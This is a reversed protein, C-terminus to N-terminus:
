YDYSDQMQWQIADKGEFNKFPVASFSYSSHSFGRDDEFDMRCDYGAVGNVATKNAGSTITCPTFTEHIDRPRNQAEDLAVRYNTTTPGFQFLAFKQVDLLNAEKADPMYGPM